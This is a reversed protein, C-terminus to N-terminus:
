KLKNLEDDLLDLADPLVDVKASRYLYIEPTIDTVDEKLRETDLGYKNIVSDTDRSNMETISM